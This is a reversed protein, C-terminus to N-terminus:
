RIRHMRGVNPYFPVSFKPLPPGPPEDSGPRRPEYYKGIPFGRGDNLFPV